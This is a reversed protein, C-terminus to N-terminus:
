QRPPGSAGGGEIIAASAGPQTRTSCVVVTNAAMGATVLYDLEARHLLAQGEVDGEGGRITLGNREEVLGRESITALVVAGGARARVVALIVICSEDEVRIAM